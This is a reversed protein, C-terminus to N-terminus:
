MTSKREVKDESWDSDYYYVLKSRRGNANPTQM